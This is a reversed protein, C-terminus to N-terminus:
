LSQIRQFHLVLYMHYFHMLACFTSRDRQVSSFFSAVTLTPVKKSFAKKSFSFILKTMLFILPQNGENTYSASLSLLSQLHNPDIQLASNFAQIAAVDNENESQAIGLYQWAEASSPSQRVAEEFLLVANALDGAELRFM